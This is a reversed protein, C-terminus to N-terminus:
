VASGPQAAERMGTNPQQWPAEAAPAPSREKAKGERDVSGWLTFSPHDWRQSVELLPQSLLVSASGLPGKQLAAPRQSRRSSTAERERLVSTYVVPWNGEMAVFPDKFTVTFNMSHKSFPKIFLECCVPFDLDQDSESVNPM